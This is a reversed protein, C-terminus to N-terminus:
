MKVDCARDQFSSCKARAKAASILCNMAQVVYFCALYFRSTEYRRSDLEDSTKDFTLQCEVIEEFFDRVALSFDRIRFRRHM